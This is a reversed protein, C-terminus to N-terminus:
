PTRLRDYLETTQRSPRMQLANWLAKACRHYQALALHAQGSEAYCIMLRRHAAENYPDITLLRRGAVTAPGYDGNAIYLDILRSQVEVALLRLTERTAAAWEAYPDDALFHGNYLKGAAEYSGLAKTVDGAREARRGDECAREFEEADVWVAVSDSLRYTDHRRELVPEPRVARLARRVGTLAVHLSNRAAEPSVHPWFVDMLVDRHVPAQRHSLLYALVNRTRRSSFTDVVHGDLVVSFRGLCHAILRPRDPSAPRVFGQVAGAKAATAGELSVLAIEGARAAGHRRVFM